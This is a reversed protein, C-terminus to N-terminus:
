QIMSAVVVKLDCFQSGVGGGAQPSRSNIVTVEYKLTLTDDEVHLTMM